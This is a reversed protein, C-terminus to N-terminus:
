PSDLSLLETAPSWYVDSGATASIQFVFEEGVPLGTVPISQSGVTLEGLAIGDSMEGEEAGTAGWHLAYSAQPAGPDLVEFEVLHGAGDVTIVPVGMVVEYPLFARLPDDLWVPWQSADILATRGVPLGWHVYFPGLDFGVAESFRTVWQDIRALEGSPAEGQPIQQYAAHVDIFPQWGFAVQLQLYSDLATWVSWEEFPAGKDFYAAMRDAVEQAGLAPHALERPIGFVDEHVLVSWLNVTSEVTGPLVTDIWQHNHGLEHVPGWSGSELLFGVDVTEAATPDAHGMAPYGSHLWGLSIQRDYVIREARDREHPIAALDACADMVQDWLEAVEGADEIAVAVDRPVTVIFKDSGIEAWPAAHGREVEWDADSTEGRAYRTMAVGGQVSVTIEGLDSGVPVRLYVPGGLANASRTVTDDIADVRVLQPFRSWSDKNWLTDSHAGIAGGLGKGASEPAGEVEILAGPAAYVGLSIWEPSAPNSFAYQLPRGPYSADVTRTVSVEPTGEPVPGPFDASAPHIYMEEPPLEQNRKHDYIVILSEVLEVNPEVPDAGTPVVPGVAAAMEAAKQFYAEFSLSLGHLAIRVTMTAKELLGQSLVAEGTAHNAVAELAKWAHTIPSHPASPIVEDGAEVDSLSTWTIGAENFLRNAPFSHTVDENDYSWWWANGAALLGGGNDVFTRLTDEGEESLDAAADMVYADQLLVEEPAMTVVDFGASALDSQIEPLGPAIGIVAGERDAIWTVVNRVLNGLDDVPELPPHIFAGHGFAAVRGEGHCGAAGYARGQEDVVVPFANLGHVVLPSPVANGLSLTSVGETIQSYAEEPDCGDPGEDVDEGGEADAAVGDPGSGDADGGEESLADPLDAGDAEGSEEGVEATGSDGCGAFVSLVVVAVAAGHIIRFIVGQNSM